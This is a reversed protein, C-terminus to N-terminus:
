DGCSCFTESYIKIIVAKDTVNYENMLTYHEHYNIYSDKKILERAEQETEAVVVCLGNISEWFEFIKM